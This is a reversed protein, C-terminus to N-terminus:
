NLPAWARPNMKGRATQISDQTRLDPGSEIGLGPGIPVVMWANNKGIFLGAATARPAQKLLALRLPEPDKSMKCEHWLMSALTPYHKM